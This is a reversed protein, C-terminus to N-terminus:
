LGELDRKCDRIDKFRNQPKWGKSKDVNAPEYYYLDDILGQKIYGVTKYDREDDEVYCIIRDTAWPGPKYVIM